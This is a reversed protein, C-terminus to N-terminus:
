KITLLKKDKIIFVSLFILMLGAFPMLYFNKIWQSLIVGEGFNLGICICSFCFVILFVMNKYINSISILYVLPFLFIYISRGNSVLIPILACLMSYDFKIKQSKPLNKATLMLYWSVFLGLIILVFLHVIKNNIIFFYGLYKDFFTFISVNEINGIESERLIELKLELYWYYYNTMLNNFNYNFLPTFFLVISSFVIYLVQKFQKEFIFYLIFILFYPKIFGSLAILVSSLLTNKNNVILSYLILFLILINVQGLHLERFYHSFMSLVIFFVIYFLHYKSISNKTYSKFLKISIILNLYMLLSIFFSYFIKAIEFPVLAFPIFLLSAVPSYKYRYFGDEGPRYLLQSNLFRNASNYYVEFDSQWYRNNNIELLIFFITFIVFFFLLKYNYSFKSSLAKM